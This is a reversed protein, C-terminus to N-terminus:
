SPDGPATSRSQHQFSVSIAEWEKIHPFMAGPSTGLVTRKTRKSQICNQKSTQQGPFLSSMTQIVFTNLLLM